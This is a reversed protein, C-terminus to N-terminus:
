SRTVDPHQKGSILQRSAAEKGVEAFGIPTRGHGRDYFMKRKKKLLSFFYIPLVRQSVKKHLVIDLIFDEVSYSSKVLFLDFTSM